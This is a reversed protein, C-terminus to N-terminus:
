LTLISSKFYILEDCKWYINISYFYMLETHNSDCSVFSWITNCLIITINLLSIDFPTKNGYPLLSTTFRQTNDWFYNTFRRQM